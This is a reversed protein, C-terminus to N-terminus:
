SSIWRAASLWLRVDPDEEWYDSTVIICGELVCLAVCFGNPTHEPCRVWDGNLLDKGTALLLVSLILADLLVPTRQYGQLPSAIQADRDGRSRSDSDPVPLIVGWYGPKAVGRVHYRGQEYMPAKTRRLATLSKISEPLYVIREDSRAPTPVPSDPTEVGLLEGVGKASFIMEHAIIKEKPAGPFAAAIRRMADDDADLMALWQATSIWGNLKKIGTKHKKEPLGLIDKSRM